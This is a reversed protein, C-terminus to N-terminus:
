NDIIILLKQLWYQVLAIVGLRAIAKQPYCQKIEGLFRCEGDFVLMAESLNLALQYWNSSQTVSAEVVALLQWLLEREAPDSLWLRQQGDLWNIAQPRNIHWILYEFDSDQLKILGERDGLRLLSCCRHHVYQLPILNHSNTAPKLSIPAYILFNPRTALKELSRELWVALSLESLYFDLYGSNHAVVAFELNGEDTLSLDLSSMNQVLKRAIYAPSLQCYSALPFAIACRYVFDTLSLKSDTQSFSDTFYWKESSSRSLLIKHDLDDAIVSFDIHINEKQIYLDITRLLDQKLLDKIAWNKRSLQLKIFKYFFTNNSVNSDM